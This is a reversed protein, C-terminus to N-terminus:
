ALGKIEIELADAITILVELEIEDNGNEIAQIYSLDMGSYKSLQSQTMGKKERIIGLHTRFDKISQVTTM